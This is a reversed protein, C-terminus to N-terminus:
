QEADHVAGPLLEDIVGPYVVARDTVVETHESQTTTIALSFVGEASCRDRGVVNATSPRVM